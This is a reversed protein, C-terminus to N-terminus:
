GLNKGTTSRVINAKKASVNSHTNTVIFRKNEPVDVDYYSPKNTILFCHPHSSTTYVTRCIFARNGHSKVFKQLCIVQDGLQQM